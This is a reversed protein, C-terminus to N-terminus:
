QSPRYPHPFEDADACEDLLTHPQIDLGVTQISGQKARVCRRARWRKVEKDAFNHALHGRLGALFTRRNPAHQNRGFVCRGRSVRDRRRQRLDNHAIRGVWDTFM